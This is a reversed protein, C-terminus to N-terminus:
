YGVLGGPGSNGPIRPMYRSTPMSYAFGTGRFKAGRLIRRIEEWNEADDQEFIGGAGAVDTRAEATM